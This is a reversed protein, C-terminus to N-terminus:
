QLRSLLHKRYELLILNPFTRSDNLLLSQHWLDTALFYDEGRLGYHAVIHKQIWQELNTPFAYQLEFECAQMVAQRSAPSISADIIAFCDQLTLPTNQRM